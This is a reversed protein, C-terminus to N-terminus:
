FFANSFIIKYRKKKRKKLIKTKMKKTPIQYQRKKKKKKLIKTKTQKSLIQHRRNLKKVKQKM